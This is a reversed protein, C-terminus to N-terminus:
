ITNIVNADSKIDDDEGEDEKKGKEDGDEKKGELDGDDKHDEEGDNEVKDVEGDQAEGEEEEKENEEGEDEEEVEGHYSERLLRQLLSDEKENEEGEDEEEVEGHYFERLLRQLLLSDINAHKQQHHKMIRVTTYISFKSAMNNIAHEAQIAAEEDKVSNFDYVLHSGLWEISSVNEIGFDFGNLIYMTDYPYFGLFLDQLMPLCNEEFKLLMVRMLVKFSRLCLFPTHCKGIVLVHEPPVKVELFLDHLNPLCGLIELDNQKLETVHLNLKQLKILFSLSQPVSPITNYVFMIFEELKNPHGPEDLFWNKINPKSNANESIWLSISKLSHRCLKHISTIFVVEEEKMVHDGETEEAGYWFITLLKLNKMQGLNQLFELSQVEICIGELEELAEMRDIGDPLKAPPGVNLFVLRRLELISPPLTFVQHSNRNFLNLTELNQLHEIGELSDEKDISIALYKLHFLKTIQVFQDSSLAPGMENNEMDLVRLIPFDSLSPLEKFCGFTSLSRVHSVEEKKLQNIVDGKNTDHISLRRIKNGESIPLHLTVFNEEIAKAKIFDLIIDHVRCHKVLGYSKMNVPQILNRNLLELFYLEGKENVEMGQADIFGEASWRRILRKRNIETNEPFISLYLLCKRLHHPLDVYSLSLIRRMISISEHTGAVEHNLSEFLSSWEPKRKGVLLRSVTNIALPLGGCKNLIQHFPEELDNPCDEGKKFGAGRLFLEMSYETSLPNIHYVCKSSCCKTALDKIRTTAVIRGGKSSNQSLASKITDWPGEKWLDDVIVFYRKDKVFEQLLRVLDTTKLKYLDELKHGKYGFKDLITALISDRNPNQTVCVDATCDFLVDQAKIVTLHRQVVAALTTKGMGGSGVIFVVKHLETSTKSCDLMNIVDNMKGDMGVLQEYNPIIALERYNAAEVGVRDDNNSSSPPKQLVNCSQIRDNLSQIEMAILYDSPLKKISEICSKFAEKVRDNFQSVVVHAEQDRGPQIPTFMSIADEIDYALERATSMRLKLENSPNEVASLDLLVSEIEQQVYKLKEVNGPIGVVQSFNELGCCAIWKLLAGLNSGGASGLVSEAVKDKNVM